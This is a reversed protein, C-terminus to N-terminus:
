QTVQEHAPRRLRMAQFFNEGAQISERVAPDAVFQGFARLDESLEEIKQDDAKGGVEALVYRVILRTIPVPLPSLPAPSPLTELGFAEVLKAAEDLKVVRDGNYIETVRSPQIDLVRAVDINRIKRERLSAILQATNIM